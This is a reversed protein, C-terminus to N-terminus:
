HSTTHLFINRIVTSLSFQIQRLDQHQIAFINHNNDRSINLLIPAKTAHGTKLNSSLINTIRVLRQPAIASVNPQQGHQHNKADFLKIPSLAHHLYM